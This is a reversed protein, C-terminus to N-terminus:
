RAPGLAQLFGKNVNIDDSLAIKTKARIRAPTM